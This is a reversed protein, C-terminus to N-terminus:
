DSMRSRGAFRARQRDAQWDCIAALDAVPVNTYPLHMLYPAPGFEPTLTTEPVGCEAQADWCMDWWQEHSAVEEGYEPARPDPVQPSEASGVRAHIHLCRTAALRIVDLEDDFRREAVCVWHSFDCTLRLEPLELLLDRTTWPNYLIRGRHTEYAVATGSDAGIALAERFFQRSDSLPWADRGAHANVLRAGLRKAHALQERFSALHDRVTAGSTMALAIYELGSRDLLERFREDKGSVVDEIGAYGRSAAAPVFRDLPESVGWLHRFVRLEM